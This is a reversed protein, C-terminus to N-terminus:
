GPFLQLAAPRLHSVIRHVVSESMETVGGAWEAALRDEGIVRILAVLDLHQLLAKTVPRKADSFMMARYFSRAVQSDLAAHLVTAEQRTECPIFYCTDDFVVPKGDIPGVLRFHPEKHLGSVAVKWSAFTYPGVGFISYPTKDAYISSRRMGFAEAHAELYMWTHPAIKRLATTNEGISQQTVLLLRDTATVRGHFVDSGKLLPYICTEEVSVVEGLGNLLVGDERRLEMVKSCDHKIGSRWTKQSEGRLDRLRDYTDLDSVLAGDRYGIRSSRSSLNLGSFVDCDYRPSTAGTACYLLCADVSAGFHAQADILFMAAHSLRLGKRTARTLLKRAVSTKCLVAMAGEHTHLAELLKWLMWESIDFNSKGTIADLGRHEDFNSKGPLNPIGTASLASNTVWPPNGIV